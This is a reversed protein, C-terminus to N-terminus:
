LGTRQRVCVANETFATQRVNDLAGDLTVSLGDAVVTGQHNNLNGASIDLRGASEM